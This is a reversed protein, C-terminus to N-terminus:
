DSGNVDQMLGARILGSALSYVNVGNVILVGDVVCVTKGEREARMKMRDLTKKRQIDVPEDAALFVRTAYHKLKYSSSLLIRRDWFSRLKVIIPRTKQANFRGIRFLDVVEIDKDAVYKLVVSVAQQWVNVNKDEPIGFLILNQSRDRDNTSSPNPRNNTAVNVTVSESLKTCVSHLQCVRATVENQFTSMQRNLADITIQTRQFFEDMTAQTRQVFADCVGADTKNINLVSLADVQTKLESVVADTHLQKDVVSCINIEEPGYHPVRDFASACFRVKNLVGSNDVHDLIGIIDEVEAHHAPRTTSSRRENKLSSNTLEKAFENVLLKKSDGIEINNYFHILVKILNDANSRNRYFATYALLENIITKPTGSHQTGESIGTSPTAINASRQNPKDPFRSKECADCLMLDGQSLHVTKDNRKLPCPGDPRGECVPM